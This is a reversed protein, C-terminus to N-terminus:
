FEIGTGTRSIQSDLSIPNLLINRREVEYFYAVTGVPPRSHRINWYTRMNEVDDIM